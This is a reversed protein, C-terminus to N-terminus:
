RELAPHLRSLALLRRENAAAFDPALRKARIEKANTPRRHQNGDRINRRSKEGRSHVTSVRTIQELSIKQRALYHREFREHVLEGSHHVRRSSFPPAGNELSRNRRTAAHAAMQLGAAAGSFGEDRHKRRIYFTRSAAE